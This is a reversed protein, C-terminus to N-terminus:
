LGLVDDGEPQDRDKLSDVFRGIAGKRKPKDPNYTEEGWIEDFLNNKRRDIDKRLYESEARIHQAIREEQERAEKADRHRQEMELTQGTIASLEQRAQDIRKRYGKYQGKVSEIDNRIKELSELALAIKDNITDLEKVKEELQNVEKILEKRWQRLESHRVVESSAKMPKSPDYQEWRSQGRELGFPKMAEAHSDQMGVLQSIHRTWHKFNFNGKPDIPVIFAHLHPTAEHWHLDVRLLNKAGFQEKLWKINAEMWKGMDVESAMEPSFTMVFDVLVCADKRVKRGTREQQELMLRKVTQRMTESEIQKITINHERLEPHECNKHLETKQHREVSAVRGFQNKRWRMIDYQPMTYRREFRQDKVFFNSCVKKTFDRTHLDSNKQFKMKAYVDSKANNHSALREKSTGFQQSLKESRLPKAVSRLFRMQSHM